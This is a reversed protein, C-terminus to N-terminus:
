AAARRKELIARKRAARKQDAETEDYKLGKYRNKSMTRPDFEAKRQKEQELARKKAEERAMQKKIRLRRLYGDDYKSGKYKIRQGRPGEKILSAKEAETLEKTRPGGLRENLFSGHAM